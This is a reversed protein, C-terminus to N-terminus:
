ESVEMAITNYKETQELENLYKCRANLAFVGIIIVSYLFLVGSYKTIIKKM